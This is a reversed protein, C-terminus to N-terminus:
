AIFAACGGAPLAAVAAVGVPPAFVKAVAAMGARYTISRCCHVSAMASVTVGAGLVGYVSAM